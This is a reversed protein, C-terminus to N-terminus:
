RVALAMAGLRRSLGSEPEALPAIVTFHDRAPLEESTGGWAAAFDRTQRRFEGSEAGGVVAHLAGGPPPLFRPSLRRAEEPTLRLAAAITTPLLPELEFVGSIPVGAPVLDPPLRPDRARWDTAMLMATLHGGASHGSALLRRGSRRHLLLAAARMQELITSLTVQPCLDYSPIALAVGQTLVGRALHSFFGRDLSQWYGGHIFLAIPWDEGPGPRFLDLREREGPGYSLGLEAEPWQARFAVADRQWGAIIAPHEPVRARNDYEVQADM